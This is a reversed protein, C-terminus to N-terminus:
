GGRVRISSSTGTTTTYIAPNQGLEEESMDLVSLVEDQELGMAILQMALSHKVHQVSTGSLQGAITLALDPDSRAYHFALSQLANDRGAGDPLSTVWDVAEDEDFRVWRAAIQSFVHQYNEDEVFEDVMASAAQPDEHSIQFMLNKMADDYGPHDEYDQLWALAGERSQAMRASALGQLLQSSFASEGEEILFKEALQPNTQPLIAFLMSEMEPSGSERVWEIASAPDKRLYTHVLQMGMEPRLQAPLNDIYDIAAQLDKQAWNSIASTISHRNGNKRVFDDLYSLGRVADQQMMQGIVQSELQLNEGITANLFEYAKFADNRAVSSVVVSLLMQRERGEPMELIRQTAAAPDSEAWRFLATSLGNQRQIGNGALMREFAEAPDGMQARYAQRLAEGRAGLMAALQEDFGSAIFVSDRLLRQAIEFRDQQGLDALYRLANEPESRAWTTLVSARMSQRAEGHTAAVEIYDLAKQPGIEILRELFVFVINHNYFHDDSQLFYDMAVKLQSVDSDAAIEHALLQQRFISTEDVIARIDVVEVAPMQVPEVRSAPPPIYVVQGTADEQYRAERVDIEPTALYVGLGLAAAFVLLHSAVLVIRDM